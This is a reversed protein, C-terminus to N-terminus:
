IVEGEGNEICVGTKDSYYHNGAEDSYVKVTGNETGSNGREWDKCRTLKGVIKFDNKKAYERITM